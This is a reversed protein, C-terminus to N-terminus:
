EKLMSKSYEIVIDPLHFTEQLVNFEDIDDNRKPNNTNSIANLKDFHKDGCLTFDTFDSTLPEGVRSKDVKDDNYNQWEPEEDFIFNQLVLACSTCTLFGDIEQIFSLICKPCAQM